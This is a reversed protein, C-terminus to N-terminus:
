DVLPRDGSEHKVSRRGRRISAVDPDDALSEDDGEARKPLASRGDRHEYTRRPEDVV